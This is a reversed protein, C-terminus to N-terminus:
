PWQRADASLRADRMEAAAVLAAGDKGYMVGPPPQLDAVLGPM